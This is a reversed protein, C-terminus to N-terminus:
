RARRIADLVMQLVKDVDALCSWQEESTAQWIRFHLNGVGVLRQPLSPSLSPEDIRKLLCEFVDERFVGQIRLVRLNTLVYLRGMWQFCALIVRVCGVALSVLWVTQLPLGGHFYTRALYVLVVPVAALSLVPLSAFMIFWASPKVALIVEEGDHLFGASHVMHAVPANSEVSPTM